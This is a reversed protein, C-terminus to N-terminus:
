QYCSHWYMNCMHCILISKQLIKQGYISFGPQLSRGCSGLSGTVYQVKGLWAAPNPPWSKATCGVASWWGARRARQTKPLHWSHVSRLTQLPSLPAPNHYIIVVVIHWNINVDEAAFVGRVRPATSSRRLTWATATLPLTAPFCPGRTRIELRSGAPSFSRHNSSVSM